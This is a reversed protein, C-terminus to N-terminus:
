AGARLGVPLRKHLAAGMHRYLVSDYARRLEKM